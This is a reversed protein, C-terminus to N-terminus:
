PLNVFIGNGYIGTRKQIGEEMDQDDELLVPVLGRRRGIDSSLLGDSLGLSMQFTLLHLYELQCTACYWHGGSLAGLNNPVMAICLSFVERKVGLKKCLIYFHSVFICCLQNLYTGM